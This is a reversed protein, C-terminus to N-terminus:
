FNLVAAFLLRTNAVNKLENVKGFSDTKGYAANTYELEMQLAVAGSKIELRPAIRFVYDINSGRAYSTGAIEKKSGLNETYGLFLGPNAYWDYSLDTWASFVSIPSYSEAGTEPDKSICAYGGLMLLDTMNGGYLGEAKLTVRNIKIKSYAMVAFSGVRESTKYEDETVLQPVISKYDVGTGFITNNTIYKIQLDLIPLLSNRLYESSAGSPGLTTFDRQFAATFSVHISNLKQTIRAQPNRAVPQFPVGGNFSVVGPYVELVFMPNWFQGILLSTNEWDLNIFAHRLRFGNIDGDSHGFFEGELLGSTKAGFADPGMVKGRLRTQISLMNLSAKSNIDEGEADFRESAPYLLFHNERASITQRSDFMADSRVYGSFKISYDGDQAVLISSAAFVFCLILGIRNSTNLLFAKLM